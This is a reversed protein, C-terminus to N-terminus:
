SRSLRNGWRRPPTSRRRHAPHRGSDVVILGAPGRLIVRNGDPQRGPVFEGRVLWLDAAVATADSAMVPAATSLAAGLALARSCRLIRNM